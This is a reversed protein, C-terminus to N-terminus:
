ISRGDSRKECGFYSRGGLYDLKSQNNSGKTSVACAVNDALEFDNLHEMTILQWFLVEDIVILFM